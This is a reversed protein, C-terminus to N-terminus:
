SYTSCLYGSNAAREAQCRTKRIGAEYTVLEILTQLVYDKAACNKKRKRSKEKKAVATERPDRKPSRQGCFTIEAHRSSDGDSESRGWKAGASSGKSGGDHNSDVMTPKGRVQDVSKKM